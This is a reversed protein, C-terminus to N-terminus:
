KEAYYDCLVDGSSCREGVKTAILKNPVRWQNETTAWPGPEGRQLVNGGYDVLAVETAERFEGSHMPEEVAFAVHLNSESM